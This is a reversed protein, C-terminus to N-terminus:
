RTSATVGQEDSLSGAALLGDYYAVVVPDCRFNSPLSAVHLGDLTRARSLAVYAQGTTFVGALSCSVASLSM